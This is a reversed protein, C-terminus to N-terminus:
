PDETGDILEEHLIPFEDPFERNLNELALKTWRNSLSKQKGQEVVFVWETKAEDVLAQLRQALGEEYKALLELEPAKRDLNVVYRPTPMEFIKQAYATKCEGYRVKAAMAYEGIGFRGLAVYQDQIKTTLTDLARIMSKAQKETRAQKKLRYPLFKTKYDREAFYLAYEGALRAGRTNKAAGKRQWAKITEERYTDADRNRRRKAYARAIDYYTFIYDDQNVADNGYQKRWTRYTDVLNRVDGSSRYIRAIAWLTRDKRRRDSDEREYQRYLRIAQKFNRDLESLLAANFLADLKVQEFSKAQEGPPPPPPKLGRRRATRAQGHLKLYTSIANKYDFVGQYSLATLRLAELYYASKRFAPSKDDTFEKFLHIATKPKDAERYAIASNYLATPVDKDDAPASRYYVYFAKAANPYDGDQFLREAKRFEISRNQSQALAIAAQDGCKSSIFKQNTEKFKDDEGRADYISLLGDKAKAAEPSGCFREVVVEFRRIADDLHLYSVSVIASNLAMQPATKPDNILTQYEDYAAQLDRHILAMPLPQIPRALAKLEETTPVRIAATAGAAVERAAEAEYSQIISYAADEFYESSLERHDRVWRYQEVAELYRETFFLAEAMGFTFTYIHESEPYQELFSRYLKLAKGYLDLYRQKAPPNDVGAAIYEERLQTAAAHMNRAAAYLMREGIRRQNEMAGRDKENALYWETGPGYRTALEGAAEDAALKDGKAEYANVIEQHVIPNQPHLHWPKGIAKEYCAIAQDYAQLEGFANGLTEWVDRLHPESERGKYFDEVRQLSLAPDTDPENNWPDTFAVAIYQLAEGRLELRPQDGRAVIEDYLKVSEDFYQIAEILFDRRYYSWALKYLSEAYLSSSAVRAVKSYGAIAQNLEGHVSFHHDGIGRVWAHQILEDDAGPYPTCDSYPDTLVRSEATERAEERTPVRPAPDGYKHKNACVLALFIKLSRREDDLKGYYALLYLTGPLQRYNPFRELIRQWLVISRSYDAIPDGALEGSEERLELEYEALDLYLDALRFMADPTFEQHDPHDKIFKELLAIAELHRRRKEADTRAIREAYRKELEKARLDFERQLMIRLRAHHERIVEEYRLLDKEVEALVELEEASLPRKVVNLVTQGPASQGPAAQSPASQDPASRGPQAAAPSAVLVGALLALTTRAPYTTM